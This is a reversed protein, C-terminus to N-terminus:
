AQARAGGAPPEPTGTWSEPRHGQAQRAVEAFFWTQFARQEPTRALSLLRERTCFEDAFDLLEAFRGMTRASEPTLQLTLDISGGGSASLTRPDVVLGARLERQLSDFLDALTRALPYSDEHALALLRVERRLEQYHRQFDRLQELPVGLLQYDDLDAAGSAEAVPAQGTLAGPVGVDRLEPAPAFWMVKGAEEIEAGWAVASRAVIDLGRGFTVLLRDEDIDLPDTALEAPAPMVPPETSGDRVEVRPHGRTGRVRVQIPPDAHLVANTMLECAALETTEALEPRGWARVIDVVWARADQLGQSGTAVDLSPSTQPVTAGM